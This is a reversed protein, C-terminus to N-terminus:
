VTPTATLTPSPHRHSLLAPHTIPNIDTLRDFNETRIVLLHCTHLINIIRAPRRQGPQGLVHLWILDGVQYGGLKARKFPVDESQFLPAPQFKIPGGISNIPMVAVGNAAIQM